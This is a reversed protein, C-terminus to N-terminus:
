GSPAFVRAARNSGQCEERCLPQSSPTRQAEAPCPTGAALPGSHGGAARHSCPLLFLAWAWSACMAVLQPLVATFSAWRCLVCLVARHRTDFSDSRGGGRPGQDSYYPQLDRRVVRLSAPRRLARRATVPWPTRARGPGWRAAGAFTQRASAGARHACHPSRSRSSPLRSSTCSLHLGGMGEGECSSVGGACREKLGHGGLRCCRTCELARTCETPAARAECRGSDEAGRGSTQWGAM